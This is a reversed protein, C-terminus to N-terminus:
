NYALDYVYQIGGAKEDNILFGIQTSNYYWEGTTVSGGWNLFFDGQTTVSNGDDDQVFGIGTGNGRLILAGTKSGSRLEYCVSAVPALTQQACSLEEDKGDAAVLRITPTLDPLNREIPNSGFRVLSGNAILGAEEFAQYYTEKDSDSLKMDYVIHGFMKEMDETVYERIESESFDFRSYNSTLQAATRQQYDMMKNVLRVRSEADTATTQTESEEQTQDSGSVGSADAQAITAKLDTIAQPENFSNNVLEGATFLKVYIDNIQEDSYDAVQEDALNICYAEALRSNAEAMAAESEEGLVNKYYNYFSTQLEVQNKAYALVLNRRVDETQTGQQGFGAGMLQPLAFRAAILLVIIITGILINRKTIIHVKKETKPKKKADPQKKGTEPATNAAAKGAVTKELKEVFKLGYESVFVPKGDLEKLVIRAEQPKTIDHQDMIQKIIKLDKTADQYEKESDFELDGLTWKQKAM